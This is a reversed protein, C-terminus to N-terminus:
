DTKTSTDGGQVEKVYADLLNGMAISFLLSTPLVDQDYESIKNWAKVILKDRKKKNDM